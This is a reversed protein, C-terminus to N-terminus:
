KRYHRIFILSPAHQAAQAFLDRVRAAGVGVFMEVFSSGNTSFFPVGAEGAVARALLTKGTGPPGVLLVGKPLHAGLRRYMDPNKLFHVVEQLEARAEDIGAVDKFTVGTSKEMYVKAKSKGISMLGQQPGMRRMLFAWLSFFLLVPLVWSLLTAFWTNEVQGTYPVKAAELEQVLTPDDIRVATFPYLGSTDDKGTTKVIRAVKDQPLVREIGETRMAGQVYPTGLTVRAINGTRLLAKFESYDLQQVHPAVLFSQSIVFY